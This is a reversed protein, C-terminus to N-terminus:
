KKKTKTKTKTKAAKKKKAPMIRRNNVIKYILKHRMKTDRSDYVHRRESRPRMMANVLFQNDKM